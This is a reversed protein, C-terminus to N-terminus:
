FHEIAKQREKNTDLNRICINVNQRNNHEKIKIKTEKIYNQHHYKIILKVKDDPSILFM